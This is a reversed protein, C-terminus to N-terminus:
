YLDRFFYDKIPTSTENKRADEFYKWYRKKIFWADFLLGLVVLIFIGIITMPIVDQYGTKGYLTAIVVIFCTLFTVHFLASIM